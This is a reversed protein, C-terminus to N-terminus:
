GCDRTQRGAWAGREREKASGLLWYRSLRATQEHYILPSFLYEMFDIEIAFCVQLFREVTERQKGAVKAIALIALHVRVKKIQCRVDMLKDAYLFGQDQRM